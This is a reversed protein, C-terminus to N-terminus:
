STCDFNSWFLMLIQMLLIVYWWNNKISPTLPIMQLYPLNHPRLDSFHWSRYNILGLLQNIMRGCERCFGQLRSLFHDLVTTSENRANAEGPFPNKIIRVIIFILHIKHKAQWAYPRPKNKWHKGLTLCCLCLPPPVACLNGFARMGPECSLM